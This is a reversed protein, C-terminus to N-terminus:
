PKKVKRGVINFQPLKRKKSWEAFRKRIDTHHIAVPKPPEVPGDKAHKIAKHQIRSM